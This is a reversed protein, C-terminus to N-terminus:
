RGKSASAAKTRSGFRSESTPISNSSTRSSKRSNKKFAEQAAPDSHTHQPRPKLYSFKLTHRLFYYVSSRAYATQFEEQLIRRIDAGRLSCVEDEPTPEARLRTRVQELQEGSLRCRRGGRRDRLGSVGHRNYGHVWNRVAREAVGWLQAVRPVHEGRAVALLARLRLQGRARPEVRLAAQLEGIAGPRTIRLPTRM